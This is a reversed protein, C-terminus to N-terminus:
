KKEGPKKIEPPLPKQEKLVFEIQGQANLRPGYKDGVTKQMEDLVADAARDEDIQARKLNEIQLGLNSSKLRHNEWELQKQTDAPIISPEAKTEAAVKDAVKVQARSMSVGTILIVLLIILQRKM